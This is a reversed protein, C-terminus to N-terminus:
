NYVKFLHIIDWHPTFLFLFYLDSPARLVRATRSCLKSKIRLVSSPTREVRMGQLLVTWVWM